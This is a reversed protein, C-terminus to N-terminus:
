ENVNEKNLSRTLTRKVISEESMKKGLSAISMKMRTNFSKTKGKTATSAKEKQKDTVKRIKNADATNGSTLQIFCNEVSYPGVDGVRSMCYQGKKTGRNEWQGSDKWMSIWEGFTFLFDINRRESRGRHEYYRKLQYDISHYDIDNTQTM